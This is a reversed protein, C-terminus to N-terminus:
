AGLASQVTKADDDSAVELCASASNCRPCRGVAVEFPLVVRCDVCVFFPRPQTAMQALVEEVTGPKFRDDRKFIGGGTVLLYLGTFSFAGALVLALPSVFFYQTSGVDLRQEMLYWGAGGFGLGVLLAVVGGARGSRGLIGILQETASVGM